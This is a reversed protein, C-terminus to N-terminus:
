GQQNTQALNKRTARTEEMREIYNDESEMEFEFKNSSFRKSEIAYRMEDREPRYNQVSIQWQRLPYQTSDSTPTLHILEDTGDTLYVLIVKGLVFCNRGDHHDEDGQYAFVVLEGAHPLEDKCIGITDQRQRESIHWM